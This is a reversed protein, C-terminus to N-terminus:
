RDGDIEELEGGDWAVRDHTESRRTPTRVFLIAALALTATGVIPIWPWSRYDVVGLVEVRELAARGLPDRVEIEVMRPWPPASVEVRFGGFRSVEVSRGDVRVSSGPLTRGTVTARLLGAGSARAAVTPVEVAFTGEFRHVEIM